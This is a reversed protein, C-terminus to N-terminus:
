ERGMLLGMRRQRNSRETRLSEGLGRAAEVAMTLADEDWGAVARFGRGAGGLGSWRLESRAVKRDFRLLPLYGAAAILCTEAM